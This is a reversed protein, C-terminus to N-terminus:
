LSDKGGWAISNQLQVNFGLGLIANYTSSGDRQASRRECEPTERKAGRPRRPGESDLGTWPGDSCQFHWLTNAGRCDLAAYLTVAGVGVASRGARQRKNGRWRCTADRICHSERETHTQTTCRPALFSKIGNKSFWLRWLFLSLFFVTHTNENM